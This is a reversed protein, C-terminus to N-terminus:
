QKGLDPRSSWRSGRDDDNRALTLLKSALGWYRIARVMNKGVGLEVVADERSFIEPDTAAGDIGKKLWGYRPHFSEHRAFTPTTSAEIKV